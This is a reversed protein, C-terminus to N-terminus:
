IVKEINGIIRALLLIAFFAFSSRILMESLNLGM